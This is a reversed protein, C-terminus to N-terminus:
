ERASISWGGDGLSRVAAAGGNVTAAVKPAASEFRADFSDADVDIMVSGDSRM